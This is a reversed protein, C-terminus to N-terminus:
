CCFLDILKKIVFEYINAFRNILDKNFDKKYNNKCEFCTFILQDDRSIMYDLSSKCDICKDCHSGDSLNDVLSSLSTSTFRFSDIFKLKYKITKSSDLEKKIQYQFLLIIKRYKRRLM